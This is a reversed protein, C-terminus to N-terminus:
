ILNILVFIFSFLLYLRHNPNVRADKTAYILYTVIYITEIVCGISNITILLVAHKKVIGYYLWLMSSFLAVLYPLSQFGETSKKKWIRYFTPRFILFIFFM